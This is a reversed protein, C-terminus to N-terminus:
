KIFSLSIILNIKSSDERSIEGNIGIINYNESLIANKSNKFIFEYIKEINAEKNIYPISIINDLFNQENYYSRNLINKIEDSLCTFNFIGNFNGNRRKFFDEISNCLDNDWNLKQSVGNLEREKNIKKLLDRILLDLDVLLIKSSITIGSLKKPSVNNKNNLQFNNILENKFNIVKQYETRLNQILTNFFNEGKDEILYFSKKSYNKIEEIQDNFEKYSNIYNSKNNNEIKLKIDKIIEDMNNIYEKKGIMLIFNEIKNNSLNIMSIVDKNLQSIKKELNINDLFQNNSLITKDLLDLKQNVNEMYFDFQSLFEQYLNQIINLCENFKVCIKEKEDIIFKKLNNKYLNISSLYNRNNTLINNNNNNSKFFTKSNINILENLKSLIQNFILDDLNEVQHFLHTNGCGTQKCIFIGCDSCFSNAINENHNSCKIQRPKSLFQPLVNLYNSTFNFSNM